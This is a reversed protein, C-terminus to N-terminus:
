KKRNLTFTKENDDDDKSTVTMTDGKIEVKAPDSDDDDDSDLKVDLTGADKDYTYTGPMAMVMSAVGSSSFNISAEGGEMDVGMDDPIVYEGYKDDKGDKKEFKMISQGDMGIDLTKGDFDLIDLEYGSVKLSDDTLCMMESCDLDVHCVLTNDDKFEMSADNLKFGQAEMADLGGDEMLLDIADEGLTWDGIISDSDKSEKKDKKDKKDSSDSAKTDNEDEDDKDGCSVFMCTCLTFAALLSMMKKM